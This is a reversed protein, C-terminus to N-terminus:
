FLWELVRTLLGRRQRDAILGKGEMRIDGEAINESLVTNDSRVDDRRVVGSIKFTQVEKNVVVTRTGEIVLNGNPMVQKVIATMKATVQGTRNSTGSGSNSSSGSTSWPRILRELLKNFLQVGVSNSDTKSATTSASYTAKTAENIIITLIDGVGRATRDTFPNGKSDSYLSGLTGDYNKDIVQGHAAVAALMLSALVLKKM